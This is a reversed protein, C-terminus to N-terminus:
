RLAPVSNIQFRNGVLDKELNTNIFLRKKEILHMKIFHKARSNRRVSRARHCSAVSVCVCDPSCHIAWRIFILIRRARVNSEEIHFRKRDLDDVSQDTSKGDAHRAVLKM